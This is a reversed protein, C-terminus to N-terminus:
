RTDARSPNGPGSPSQIRHSRCIAAGNERVFREAEKVNLGRPILTFDVMAVGAAPLLGAEDLINLYADQAPGGHGEIMIILYRPASRAIGFRHELKGLRGDISKM